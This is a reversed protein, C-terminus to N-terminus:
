VPSPGGTPEGDGEPETVHFRGVGDDGQVARVVGTDVLQRLGEALGDPPHALAVELAAVDKRANVLAALMEAAQPAEGGLTEAAGHLAAVDRMARVNIASAQQFADGINGVDIADDDM